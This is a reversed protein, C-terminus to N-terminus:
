RWGLNLAVMMVPIAQGCSAQSLKEMISADERLDTQTGVLLIPVKHHKRLDLAWKQRVNEFSTPCAVSLFSLNMCAGKSTKYGNLKGSFCLIFVDTNQDCPHQLLNDFDEQGATDSVGSIFHLM